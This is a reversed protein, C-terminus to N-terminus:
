TFLMETYSLVVSRFCSIINKLISSPNNVMAGFLSEKISAGNDALLSNM